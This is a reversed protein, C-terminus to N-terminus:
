LSTSNQFTQVSDNEWQKDGISYGTRRGPGLYDIAEQSLDSTRLAKIIKCDANQALDIIAPDKTSAKENFILVMPRITAMKNISIVIGIKGNNLEVLSGPPYVGLCKVLREVLVLPLRSGMNRYMHSLAANPLMMDEETFPNTLNDFTNAVAVIKSFFRIDHEKLGLPYGSGDIYEHHQHTVTIALDPANKAKSLIDKGRQCHTILMANEIKSLPGRKYMLQPPLTRKGIDHLLAALGLIKMENEKLKLERGLLLSIMCVNLSHFEFYEKKLHLTILHVFSESNQSINTAINEVIRSSDEIAQEPHVVVNSFITEVEDRAQFYAQESAQLAKKKPLLPDMIPVNDVDEIYNIKITNIFNDKSETQNSYDSKNNDIRIKKIGLTKITEIQSESTIKFENRSFPHKFWPIDLKVHMGVKLDLLSIIEFDSYDQKTKNDSNM